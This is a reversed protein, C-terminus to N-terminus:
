VTRFVAVRHVMVFVFAFPLYWGPTLVQRSFPIYTHGCNTRLVAGSSSRAVVCTPSCCTSYQFLSAVLTYTHTGEPALTIGPVLMYMTAPLQYPVASFTTDYGICLCSVLHKTSFHVYQELTRYKFVESQFGVGGGFCFGLFKCRVAKYQYTNGQTRVYRM